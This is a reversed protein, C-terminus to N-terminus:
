EFCMHKLIYDRKKKLSCYYCYCKKNHTVASRKHNCRYCKYPNKSCTDWSRLMRKEPIHLSCTICIFPKNDVAPTKDESYIFMYNMDYIKNCKFCKKTQGYPTIRTQKIYKPWIIEEDSDDSYNNSKTTPTKRQQQVINAMPITLKGDDSPERPSMSLPLVIENENQDITSDVQTNISSGYYPFEVELVNELVGHNQASNDFDFDLITDYFSTFTDASPKSSPIEELDELSNTYSM